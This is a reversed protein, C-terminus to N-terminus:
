ASSIMGGHEHVRLEVRDREVEVAEAHRDGHVPVADGVQDAECQEQEEGPAPRAQRLEGGPAPGPAVDLVQEEVADEAGDDTPPEAVHQEVLRREIKGMRELDEGDPLAAHGEVAAQEAHDDGDGQERADPVPREELHGIQTAGQTGVPKAAPRIPLKM